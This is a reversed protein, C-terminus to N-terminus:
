RELHQHKPSVLASLGREPSRTPSSRTKLLQKEPSTVCSAAKEKMESLKKERSVGNDSETVHEQPSRDSNSESSPVLTTSSINGPSSPASFAVIILTILRFIM